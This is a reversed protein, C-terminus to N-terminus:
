DWWARVLSHGSRVNNVLGTKVKELEDPSGMAGLMQSNGLVGLAVRPKRTEVYLVPSGERGFKFRANPDKNGIALVVSAVEDGDFYNYTGVTSIADAATSASLWRTLFRTDKHKRTFKRRVMEVAKTM